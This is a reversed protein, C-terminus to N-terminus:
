GALSLSHGRHWRAFEHETWELVISAVLSQRVALNNRTSPPVIAEIVYASARPLSCHIGPANSCRDSHRGAGIAHAAGIYCRCM